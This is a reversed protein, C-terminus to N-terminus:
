MQSLIDIKVQARSTNMTVITNLRYGVPIFFFFKAFLHLTFTERLLKNLPLTIFCKHSYPLLDTVIFCELEKCLCCYKKTYIKFEPPPPRKFLIDSKRMNRILVTRITEGHNQFDGDPYCM